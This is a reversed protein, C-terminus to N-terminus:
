WGAAPPHEAPGVPAVPSVGCFVSSVPPRKVNKDIIKSLCFGNFFFYTIINIDQGGRKM